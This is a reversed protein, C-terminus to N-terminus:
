HKCGHACGKQKKQPRPAGEEEEDDDEDEWDEGMDFDAESLDDEQAQVAATNAM